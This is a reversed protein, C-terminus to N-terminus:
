AAAGKHDEPARAETDVTGRERILRQVGCTLCQWPYYGFFPLIRRQWFGERAGRALSAQGCNRCPLLTRKM